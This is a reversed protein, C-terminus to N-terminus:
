CSQVEHIQSHVALGYRYCTRLLKVANQAQNKGVTKALDNLKDVVMGRTIQTVDKRNWGALYNRFWAEYQYMTTPALTKRNDMYQRFLGEVTITVQKIRHAPDPNHGDEMERIYGKAVARAQEPTFTGFAGIKIFTKQPEGKIRRHIFFTLRDRTARCGFGDLDADFYDVQRRDPKVITVMNEKTRKLKPM